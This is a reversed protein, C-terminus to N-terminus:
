ALSILVVAICVSLLIAIPLAFRDIRAIPRSHKQRAATIKIEAFKPRLPSILLWVLLYLGAFILMRQWLNLWEVGNPLIGLIVLLVPSQLLVNHWRAENPNLLAKSFEVRKHCHRCRSFRTFRHKQIASATQCLPCPYDNPM